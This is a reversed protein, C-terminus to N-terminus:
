YSAVRAMGVLDSYTPRKIERNHEGSYTGEWYGIVSDSSDLILRVNGKGVGDRTRQGANPPLIEPPFHKVSSSDIVSVTVYRFKEVQFEEPENATKLNGVPIEAESTRVASESVITPQEAVVLVHGSPAKKNTADPDVRKAWAIIDGRRLDRFNTLRLWGNESKEPTLSTIFTAYDRARPHSRGSKQLVMEYQKPAISNVLYSVFGSCDTSVSCHSQDSFTVQEDAKEHLHRYHNNTVDDFVQDAKAFIKASLANPAEITATTSKSEVAVTSHTATQAYATLGFISMSVSSACLISLSISKLNMKLNLHKIEL